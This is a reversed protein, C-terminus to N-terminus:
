IRSIISFRSLSISAHRDEVSAGPTSLICIMSNDCVVVLLLHMYGGEISHRQIALSHSNFLNTGGWMVEMRIDHSEQSRLLLELAVGPTDLVAQQQQLTGATINSLMWCAEKRIGAKEDQMLGVVLSLFGASLVVDTQEDSSTAINGLVRLTAARMRASSSAGALCQVIANIVGPAKGDPRNVSCLKRIRSEGGETLYSLGWLADLMAHVNGPAAGAWPQGVANGTVDLLLRCLAVMAHRQYTTFHSKATGKVFNSVAWASNQLLRATPPPALANHHPLCWLVAAMGGQSLVTNCAAVSDGAMNGLGWVCQERLEMSSSPASLVAVMKSHAGHEMVASCQESTGSAVNTVAWAAEFQVGPTADHVILDCLRALLGPTGIVRDIPPAVKTALTTRMYEVAQVLESGGQCALVKAANAEFDEAQPPLPLSM